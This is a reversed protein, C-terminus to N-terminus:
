PKGLYRGAVARPGIFLRVAGFERWRAFGLRELKGELAPCIARDEERVLAVVARAGAHEIRPVLTGDFNAEDRFLRLLEELRPQFQAEGTVANSRTDGYVAIGACAALAREPLDRTKRYPNNVPCALLVARDERLRADARLCALAARLDVASAERSIPELAGKTEALLADDHQSSTWRPACTRAIEWWGFTCVLIFALRGAWARLSARLTWSQILGAAPIALAFLALSAAGRRDTWTPVLIAGALSAVAAAGCLVLVARRESDVSRWASVSGLVALVIWASMGGLLAATTGFEPLEAARELARAQVLAPLCAVSLALLIRPRARADCTPSTAALLTAVAAPWANTIDIGLALGHFLACLGIWPRKGHRLAHSACGLAAISLTLAFASPGASLYPALAATANAGSPFSVLSASLALAVSVASRRADTWLSSALLYLLLPTLLAAAVAFLAHVLTPAVRLARMSFAALLDASWAHSWPEGALWPHLPPLSRDVSMAVAARTLAPEVLRPENGRLLLCAVGAALAIAIACILQQARSAKVSGVRRRLTALHAVAFTAACAALAQRADLFLHWAAWVCAALAPSLALTLTALKLRDSAVPSWRAILPLAASALLAPGACWSLSWQPLWGLAAFCGALALAALALALRDLTKSDKPPAASTPFEPRAPDPASM